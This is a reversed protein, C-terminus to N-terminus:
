PAGIDGMQELPSPGKEGPRMRSAIAAALAGLGAPILMAPNRLHGWGRPGVNFRHVKEASPHAWGASTKAPEEFLMASGRKPVAKTVDWPPPLSSAATLPSGKAIGMAARADDVWPRTGSTATGPTRHAREGAYMAREGELGSLFRDMTGIDPFIASLLERQKRYAPANAVVEKTFKPDNMEMLSGYLGRALAQREDQGMSLFTRRFDEPNQEFLEAGMEHARLLDSGSRYASRAKKYDEPAATDMFNTLGKWAELYGGANPRQSDSRKAQQYMQWLSERMRHLDEVSPQFYPRAKNRLEGAFMAENVDGPAVPNRWFQKHGPERSMITDLDRGELYASEQASKLARVMAGTHKDFLDSLGTHAVPGKNQFAAEYLPAAASSRAKTLSGEGQLLTEKPIGLESALMDMVRGKQKEGRARLNEAITNPSGGQDVMKNIFGTTNPARETKLAVFDAFTIPKGSERVLRMYEPFMERLGKGGFDQRMSDDLGVLMQRNPSVGPFAWRLLRGAGWLGVGAGAGAAAALPTGAGGPVSLPASPARPNDFQVDEPAAQPRDFLIEESM